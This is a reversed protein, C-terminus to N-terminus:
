ATESVAGTESYGGSISESRLNPPTGGSGIIVENGSDGQAPALILGIETWEKGTLDEESDVTLTVAQATGGACLLAAALLAAGTKRYKKM